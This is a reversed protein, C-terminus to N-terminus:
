RALEELDDDDATDNATGGGASKRLLADAEAQAQAEAEKLAAPAAPPATPAEAVPQTETEPQPELQPPEDEEHWVPALSTGVASTFGHMAKEADSRRSYTVVICAAEEDVRSSRIEGHGQMQEMVSAMEAAPIAPVLVSTTRNDLVTRSAQQQQWRGGRGGRGARGRGRRGRSGRGGFEGSSRRGDKNQAAAVVALTQKASATNAEISKSLMM